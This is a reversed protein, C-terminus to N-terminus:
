WLSIDGFDKAPEKNTINEVNELLVNGSIALIEDTELSVLEARPADYYKKM